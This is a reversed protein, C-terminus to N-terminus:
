IESICPVEQAPKFDGTYIVMDLHSQTSDFIFLYIFLLLLATFVVKTTDYIGSVFLILLSWKCSSFFPILHSFFSYHYPFIEAVHRGFM